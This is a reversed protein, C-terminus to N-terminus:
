VGRKGTMHVWHSLSLIILLLLTSLIWPLLGRGLQSGLMASAGPEMPLNAEKDGFSETTNSIWYLGLKDLSFALLPPGGSKLTDTITQPLHRDWSEGSHELLVMDTKSGRIYITARRIKNELTAPVTLLISSHGEQTVLERLILHNAEKPHGPAAIVILEVM